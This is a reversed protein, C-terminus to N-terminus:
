CCCTSPSSHASAPSCACRSRPATYRRWGWAVAGAALVGAALPGVLARTLTRLDLPTRWYSVLLCPLTLALVTLSTALALGNIGWHMGVLTGVIMSGWGFMGWWTIMSPHSIAFFVWGASHSILHGLVAISLLQLILGAQDWQPGFLTYILEHPMVVGVFAIPLGAILLLASVRYYFRRLEDHQNALRALAPGVVVDIPGWLGNLLLWKLNLARTFQGAAAAGYTRGIFLSPLNLAVFGIANFGTMRAALGYVPRMGVRRAPRRPRWDCVIWLLSTTVFNGVLVGAVLSWYGWGAVGGVISIAASAVAASLDVRALKTFRLTRKLLAAHQSGLASLVFSGALVMAVHTVRDDDYFSEVLPACAVVIGAMVGSAAVKSWFLNSSQQHTIREVRITVDSLALDSLLAGIGTVAVIMAILGFDSPVLLRALVAMSAIQLLRVAFQRAFTVVVGQVSRRRIEEAQMDDGFWQDYASGDM